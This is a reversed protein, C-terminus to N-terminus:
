EYIVIDGVTEKNARVFIKSASDGSAEISLIDEIYAKEITEARSDYRYINANGTAFVKGTATNYIAGENLTIKLIGDRCVDAIGLITQCEIKNASNADLNTIRMDADPMNLIRFQDMEGDINTKYQIISGQELTMPDVKQWNGVQDSLVPLGDTNEEAVTIEVTEGNKLGRILSVIEDDDNVKETVEDILLIPENWSLSQETSMQEDIGKSIIVGAVMARDTDYIDVNYFLDNVFYDKTAVRYNDYDSADVPITFIVTDDGILYQGNFGSIATNKYYMSGDASNNDKSFNNLDYGIYSDSGNDTATNIKSIEGASNLTYQILMGNSGLFGCVNSDKISNGNYKLTSKLKLDEVKGYQSLVRLSYGSDGEDKWSQMMYGYVTDSNATVDFYAINGFCDLYFIGEDSLKITEEMGSDVYYKEGNIVVSNENSNNTVQTVKGTVTERSVRIEMVTKDMTTMVSLVDFAKLEEIEVDDGDMTLTFSVTEDRPDLIISRVAENNIKNSSSKLFVEYTSPRVSNVVFSQYSTIFVTNYGSNDVSILTIEGNDIDFLENTIDQTPIEKGNYFVSSGTELRVTKSRTDEYYGIEIEEGYDSIQAYDFSDASIRLTKNGNISEKFHVVTADDEGINKIYFYGKKGIDAYSDLVGSNATIKEKSTTIEVIGQGKLGGGTVNANENATFTGTVMEIDLMSKLVDEDKFAITGNYMKTEDLADVELTNAILIAIEGRAMPKGVSSAINKLMNHSLAVNYYNQPWAENGLFVDYGIACVVMKIAQETNVPENPRFTGDGFGDVVGSAALNEVADRYISNDLDTFKGNAPSSMNSIGTTRAIIACIEGRSVQRDPKFTGDDYGAIIGLNYLLGAADEYKTGQIDSLPLEAAYASFTVASVVLALTILMALCRKM